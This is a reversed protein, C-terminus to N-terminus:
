RAGCAATALARNADPCTFDELPINASLLVGCLPCGLFANPNLAPSRM